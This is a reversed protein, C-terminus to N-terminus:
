SNGDALVTIIAAERGEIVTGRRETLLYFSQGYQAVISTASFGIGVVDKLYPSRNSIRTRYNLSDYFSSFINKKLKHFKYIKVKSDGCSTQGITEKNTDLLKLLRIHKAFYSERRETHSEFTSSQKVFFSPFFCM